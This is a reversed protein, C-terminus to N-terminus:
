DSATVFSRGSGGASRLILAAKVVFFHELFDFAHTPLDAVNLDVLRSRGAQIAQRDYFALEGAFHAREITGTVTAALEYDTRALLGCILCVIPIAEPPRYKLFVKLGLSGVESDKWTLDHELRVAFACTLSSVDFNALFDDIDFPTGSIALRRSETDSLRAVSSWRTRRKGEPQPRFIDLSSLSKRERPLSAQQESPQTETWPSLKDWLSEVLSQQQCFLFDRLYAFFLTVLEGAVESTLLFEAFVNMVAVKIPHGQKALIRSVLEITALLERVQCRILFTIVLTWVEEGGYFLTYVSWFEWLPWRQFELSPQLRAYFHQVASVGLNLALWAGIPFRFFNSQIIDDLVRELMQMSVLEPPFHRLMIGIISAGQSKTLSQGSLRVFTQFGLRAIPGSSWGMLSQIMRMYKLSKMAGALPESELGAFRNLFDLMCPVRDPPSSIIIAIIDRLDDDDFHFSGVQRAIDFLIQREAEDNFFRRIIMLFWSVRCLPAALPMITPFLTTQWHKWIELRNEYDAEKWISVATLITCFLSEKLERHSLEIFVAYFRSYLLFNIFEQCEPNGAYLSLRFHIIQFGHARWFLEQSNYNWTLGHHLIDMTLGSLEDVYWQGSIKFFWQCFLPLLVDIGCRNVLVDVFSNHPESAVEDVSYIDGHLNRLGICEAMVTPVFYFISKDVDPKCLVPFLAVSHCVTPQGLISAQSVAGSITCDLAGPAFRVFGVTLEQLDRENVAM